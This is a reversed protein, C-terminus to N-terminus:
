VYLEGVIDLATKQPTSILSKKVVDPILSTKIEFRFYRRYKNFVGLDIDMNPGQMVFNSDQISFGYSQLWNKFCIEGLHGRVSSDFRVAPSRDRLNNFFSDGKAATIAEELENLSIELNQANQM